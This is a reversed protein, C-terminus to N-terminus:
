PCDFGIEKNPNFSGAPPAIMAGRRLSLDFHYDRLQAHQLNPVAISRVSSEGERSSIGSNEGKKTISVQPRWM